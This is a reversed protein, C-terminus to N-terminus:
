LCSLIRSMLAPPPLPPPVTALAVTKFMASLSLSLGSQQLLLANSVSEILELCLETVNYTTDPKCGVMASGDNM